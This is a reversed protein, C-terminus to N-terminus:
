GVWASGSWTLTLSEGTAALSVNGSRDMIGADITLAQTSASLNVIRLIQGVIAASNDLADITVSAATTTVLVTLVPGGRFGLDLTKSGTTTYAESFMGLISTRGDDVIFDIEVTSGAVEEFYGLPISADIPADIRFERMRATAEYENFDCFYKFSANGNDTFHDVDRADITVADDAIRFTRFDAGTFDQIDVYCRRMTLDVNSNLDFVRSFDDDVISRFTCEEFRVQASTLDVISFYDSELDCNRFTIGPIQGGVNSFILVAPRPGRALCNEFIVNSTGGAYTLLPRFGYRCNIVTCNRCANNHGRLGFGVGASSQGRYNGIATCGNFTIGVADSHLEFAGNSCNLGMGNTIVHGYSEGYKEVEADDADTAAIGNTYVHRCNIGELNTWSNLESSYDHVVYGYRNNSPSNDLDRGSINVAQLQLCGVTQIFMAGLDHASLNTLHARYAGVIRIVPEIFTGDDSSTFEFGDLALRYATAMQATRPNTTYTNRLRHATYIDNGDVYMVRAFEGIRENAAPDIGALKDDSLIKIIDGVSYPNSAFTLKACETTGEAAAGTLDQEVTNDIASIDTINTYDAQFKICPTDSGQIITAGNGKWSANQNQLLVQTSILYTGAPFWLHEFADAAAQIAATDDAIGNGVAGFDQPTPLDALKDSLLREETGGSITISDISTDVPSATTWKGSSDWAAVKSARQTVTPIVSDLDVDTVPYKACRLIIEYLQQDIQRSKDFTDEVTEAPFPGAVPLDTGQTLPLVRKIVLTQGTAPATTATLEGGEAVGAGTLEYDVGEVWTTEADTSARLTAVIHTNQFFLWPVPFAVTEDDGNYAIYSTSSSLTM